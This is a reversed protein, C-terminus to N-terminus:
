EEEVEEGSDRSLVGVIAVFLEAKDRSDQPLEEWPCIDPHAPPVAGPDKLPGRVWGSAQKDAVWNEHNERASLGATRVRQVGATVIARSRRDEWMWPLSIMDDGLVAQMGTNAMHVVQAIEEDTYRVQVGKNEEGYAAQKGDPYAEKEYCDRCMTGIFVPNQQCVSCLNPNHGPAPRTDLLTV